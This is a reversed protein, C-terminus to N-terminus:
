GHAFGGLRYSMVHKGNTEIRSKEIPVGQAMLERCRESLRLTGAIQLANLPTLTVGNQLAELLLENQTMGSQVAFINSKDVGKKTYHVDM